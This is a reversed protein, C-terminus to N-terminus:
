GGGGRAAKELCLLERLNQVCTPWDPAYHEAVQFSLDTGEIGMVEGARDCTSDDDSIEGNASSSNESNAVSMSGCLPYQLGFLNILGTASDVFPPESTSGRRSSQQGGGQRLGAIQTVATRPSSPQLHQGGTTGGHGTGHLLSARAAGALDADISADPRDGRSPSPEEVIKRLFAVSGRNGVSGRYNSASFITYCLGQQLREFGPGPGTSRGDKRDPCEHSRLLLRLNNNKLFKTTQDRGFKLLKKGRESRQPGLGNHPDSWLLDSFIGDYCEQTPEVERMRKSVYEDWLSKHTDGPTEEPYAPVAKRYDICELHRMRVTEACRPLGGHVVFVANEVVTALPLARYAQLFKRRMTDLVDDEYGYREALEHDFGHLANMQEDEHNGRNIYVSKPNKVKFAFF